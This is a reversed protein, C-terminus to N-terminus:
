NRLLSSASEPKLRVSGNIWYSKLSSSGWLFPKRLSCSQDLANLAKSQFVCIM